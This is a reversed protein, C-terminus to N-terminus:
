KKRGSKFLEEWKEIEEPSLSKERATQEAQPSSLVRRIMASFEESTIVGAHLARAEVQVRHDSSVVTMNRANKGSARLFAIIADDAILGIRVPHVRIFGYNTKPSYGAPAKDFFLEAHTKSLRCYELLIELLKTEDDLDDLRLGPIKPILNHGDIIITKV